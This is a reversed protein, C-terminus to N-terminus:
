HHGLTVARVCCGCGSTEWPEPHVSRPNTTRRPSNRRPPHTKPTPSSMPKPLMKRFMLLNAVFLHAHHSRHATAGKHRAKTTAVVGGLDTAAEDPLEVTPRSAAVGSDADPPQRGEATMKRPQIADGVAAVTAPVPAVAVQAGPARTPDRRPHTADDGHLPDAEPRPTADDRAHRRAETQVPLDPGAGVMPAVTGPVEGESGAAVPVDIPIMATSLRAAVGAGAAVSPDRRRRTQGRRVAGVGEGEMGLVTAAEVGEAERAVAHTTATGVTPTELSSATPQHGLAIQGEAVVEVAERSTGTAADEGGTSHGAETAGTTGTAETAATESRSSQSKASAATRKRADSGRPRPLV